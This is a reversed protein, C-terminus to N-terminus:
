TGKQNSKDEVLVYAPIGPPTANVYGQLTSESCRQTHVTSTCAHLHSYLCCVFVYLTLITKCM